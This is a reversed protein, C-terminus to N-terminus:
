ERLGSELMRPAFQAPSQQVSVEAPGQQIAPEQPPLAQPLQYRQVPASFRTNLTTPRTQTFMAPDLQIQVSPQQTPVKMPGRPALCHECPSKAKKHKPWYFYYFFLGAAIIFVAYSGGLSSILVQKAHSEFEILSFHSGSECHNDIDLEQIDGAEVSSTAGCRERACVVIAFLLMMNAIGSIIAMKRSTPSYWMTRDAFWNDPM